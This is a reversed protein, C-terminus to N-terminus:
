NSVPTIRKHKKETHLLTGCGVCVNGVDTYAGCKLCRKVMMFIGGDSM